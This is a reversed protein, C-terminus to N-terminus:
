GYVRKKRAEQNSESWKLLRNLGRRLRWDRVFAPWRFRSVHFGPFRAHFTRLIATDTQIPPVAIEKQAPIQTAQAPLIEREAVLGSGELYGLISQIQTVPRQLIRAIDWVQRSGDILMLTHWHARTPLEEPWASLSTIRVPVSFTLM